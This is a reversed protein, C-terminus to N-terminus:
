LHRGDPKVATGLTIHDEGQPYVMSAVTPTKCSCNLRGDLKISWLMKNFPQTLVSNFTTVAYTLDGAM